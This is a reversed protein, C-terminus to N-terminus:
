HKRYGEILLWAGFTGAHRTTKSTGFLSHVRLLPLVGFEQPMAESHLFEDQVHERMWRETSLEIWAIDALTLKKYRKLLREVREPSIRIM